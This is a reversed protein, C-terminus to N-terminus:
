KAAQLSQMYLAVRTQIQEACENVAQKEDTDGSVVNAYENVLVDHGTQAKVSGRTVITGDSLRRLTWNAIMSLNTRSATGDARDAIDSKNETVGVDLQYAAAVRLSHPNFSDHLQNTMLQGFREGIQSVQVTALQPAVDTAVGHDGYLPQFGCGALGLVLGCASLRLTDSWSM